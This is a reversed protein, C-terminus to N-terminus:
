SNFLILALINTMNLWESPSFMFLLITLTLVSITISLSSSLM